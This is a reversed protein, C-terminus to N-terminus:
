SGKRVADRRCHTFFATARADVEGLNDDLAVGGHKQAFQLNSILAAVDAGDAQARELSLLDDLEM